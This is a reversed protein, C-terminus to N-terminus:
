GYRLFRSWASVSSGNKNELSDADHDHVSSQRRSGGGSSSSGGSRWRYGQLLPAFYVPAENRQEDYFRRDYGPPQPESPVFPRFPGGDERLTDRADPKSSSALYSRASYVDQARELEADANRNGGSRARSAEDSSFPNYRDCVGNACRLGNACDSTSQCSRGAPCGYSRCTPDNDCTGNVCDLGAACDSKESCAHRLPCGAQPCDPYRSSGSGSSSAFTFCRKNVCDLNPACDRRIDCAHGVPCGGVCDPDSDYNGFGELGAGKEGRGCGGGGCDLEGWPQWQCMHVAAKAM